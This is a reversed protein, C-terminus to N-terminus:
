GLGMAALIIASAIASANSSTNDPSYNLVRDLEAATLHRTGTNVAAFVSGDYVQKCARIFESRTATVTPAVLWETAVNISLMASTTLLELGLTATCTYYSGFGTHAGSATKDYRLSGVCLYRASMHFHNLRPNTQKNRTSAAADIYACKVVVTFMRRFKM